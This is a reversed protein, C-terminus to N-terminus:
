VSTLEKPLLRHLVLSTEKDPQYNASEIRYQGADLEIALSSAIDSGHYAADFLLLPKQNKFFSINDAQWLEESLQRLARVVASADSAWQWRILIGGRERPLPLWSTQMPEDGLVLGYGPGVSILGLYNEIACARDYDTEVPPTLSGGWYEVLETSLLILPGGESSIWTLQNEM